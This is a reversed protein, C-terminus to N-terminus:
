DTLLLERIVNAGGFVYMDEPNIPIYVQSYALYEDAPEFFTPYGGALGSLGESLAGFLGSDMCVGIGLINKGSLCCNELLRLLTKEIQAIIQMNSDSESIAATEKELTRGDLTMIGASMVSRCIGIGVLFRRTIDIELLAGSRGNAARVKPSKSLIGEDILRRCEESVASPSAACKRALEAQSCPGDHLIASLIKTRVKM